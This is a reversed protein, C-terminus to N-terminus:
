TEFSDVPVFTTRAYRAIQNIAVINVGAGVGGGILPVGKVLNISATTGFKSLLRFGVKKNIEILVRGPLRRLAVITTKKGVEVGVRRMVTSANAGLLSLLVASRVEESNIDHGRLIAIAAAMRASLMYFVAVDTPLTLPMTPLGGVGTAFGSTGAYRRHIKILHIIAADVDGYHHLVEEAIQAASKYPGLGDVGTALVKNVFALAKGPDSDGIVPEFQDNTDM